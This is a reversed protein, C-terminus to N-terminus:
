EVFQMKVWNIVVSHKRKVGKKNRFIECQNASLILSQLVHCPSTSFYWLCDRCCREKIRLRLTHCVETVPALNWSFCHTFTVRRLLVTNNRTSKHFTAVLPCKCLVGIATQSPGQHDRIVTLLKDYASLWYLKKWNLIRELQLRICPMKEFHCQWDLNLSLSAIELDFLFFCKASVKARQDTKFVRCNKVHLLFILSINKISGKKTQIWKKWHAPLKQQMTQKCYILFFVLYRHDQSIHKRAYSRSRSRTKSRYVM